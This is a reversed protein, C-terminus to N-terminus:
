GRNFKDILISDMQILYNIFYFFIYIPSLNSRRSWDNGKNKRSVTTLICVLLFKLWINKREM